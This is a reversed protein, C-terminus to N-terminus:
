PQLMEIKGQSLDIQMIAQGEDSGAAVWKSNPAPSRVLQGSGIEMDGIDKGSAIVDEIKKKMADTFKYYYAAKPKGNLSYKVERVLTKGNESVPPIDKVSRTTEQGTADDVFYGLGSARPTTGRSNYVLVAGAALLLAVVAVVATKKSSDAM